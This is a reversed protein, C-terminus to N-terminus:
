GHIFVQVMCRIILGNGKTLIGMAGCMLELAVWKIIKGIDMMSQNMEGNKSAKGMSKAMELNAKIYKRPKTQTMKIIIFQVMEM